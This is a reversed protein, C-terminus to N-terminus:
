PNLDLIHAVIEGWGAGGSTDDGAARLAPFPIRGHPHHLRLGRGAAHVERCSGRGKRRKAAGAPSSVPPSLTAHSFAASTVGCGAGGSTDDGAARLAPFPIRGHPHHLRLGRGAGHVACSSGRGKRRKAAGAPSSVPPPLVAHSFAASTVGCGAGGSTDDGAARLAPFPIRGHPHHLRLGRGAAHVACSSGRGKRRKAAGAPSSVPPPLTAHSVVSM